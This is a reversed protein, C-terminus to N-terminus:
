RVSAANASLRWQLLLHFGKEAVHEFGLQRFLQLSPNFSEVYITIPRGRKGAEEQLSRLLCSGIGRSRYQPLITIDLIHFAEEGRMLYLRGVPIAGDLWVIDHAAEPYETAYHQQQAAFQMRVFADKQEASWPVQALEAARTSAYVSVLFPEDSVSVARLAIRDGVVRESGTV